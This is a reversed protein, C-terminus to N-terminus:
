ASAVRSLLELFYERPTEAVELEDLSFPCQGRICVYFLRSFNTNSIKNKELIHEMVFSLEVLHLSDPRLDPYRGHLKELAEQQSRM